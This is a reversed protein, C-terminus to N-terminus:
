FTLIGDIGFTVKKQATAASATGWDYRVEPRIVVNAHPRYNIGTTWEYASSGNNKWWEMRTGIGVCDSVSYILYQNIGVQDENGVLDTDVLDSQIVYNLKQTLAADLILSHSYGKGRSGLNGATVMYTMNLNDLLQLSVGGLFNNGQSDKDFGTDWGQTWGAYTTVCNNVKYTAYAGTHTFPESNYQTYAHSYFFNAPAMVAEYGILTFFHGAKISLDGRAVEVYAQPLAFGYIGHDWDNDWDTNAQHGFAQTDQADVGYVADVRFGWDWNCDSGDAVKEAYLWQQHLNLRDPHSNFKGNSLNHYGIQTWGGVEIGRCSTGFLKYEEGLCCEGISLGCSCGTACGCGDCGTDCASECSVDCGADCDGLSLRNSTLLGNVQASASTTICTMALIMAAASLRLFMRM